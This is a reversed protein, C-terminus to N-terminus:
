GVQVLEDRQVQAAVSRAHGSVEHVEEAAALKATKRKRAARRYARVDLAKFAAAVPYSISVFLHSQHRLESFNNQQYDTLLFTEVAVASM